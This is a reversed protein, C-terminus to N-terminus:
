KYRQNYHVYTVPRHIQEKKSTKKILTGLYQQM